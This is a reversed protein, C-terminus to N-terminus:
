RAYIVRGTEDHTVGARAAAEDGMDEFNIGGLEAAVLSEQEAPTKHGEDVLERAKNLIDGINPLKGAIPVYAPDAGPLAGTPERTIIPVAGLQIGICRELLAAREIKLENVHSALWDFHAQLRANEAMLAAIQRAQSAVEAILGAIEDFLQRRIFM